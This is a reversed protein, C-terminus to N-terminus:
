DSTRPLVTRTRCSILPSYFHRCIALSATWCRGHGAITLSSSQPAALAGIARVVRATALGSPVTRGDDPSAAGFRSLPKRSQPRQWPEIVIRCKREVLPAGASFYRTQELKWRRPECPPSMVF